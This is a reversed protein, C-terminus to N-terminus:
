QENMSDKPEDLVSETKKSLVACIGVSLVTQIILIAAMWYVDGM